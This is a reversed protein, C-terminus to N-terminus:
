QEWIWMGISRQHVARSVATLIVTMSQGRYFRGLHVVPEKVLLRELVPEMQQIMMQQLLEEAVEARVLVQPINQEM